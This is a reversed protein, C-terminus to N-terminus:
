YIMCDGTMTGRFLLLSNVSRKRGAGGEKWRRVGVEM